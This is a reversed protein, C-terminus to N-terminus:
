THSVVLRDECYKEDIYQSKSVPDMCQNNVGNCVYDYSRCHYRKSNYHSYDENYCVIGGSDCSKWYSEIDGNVDGNMYPDIPYRPSDIKYTHFTCLDLCFIVEM